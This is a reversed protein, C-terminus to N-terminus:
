KTQTKEKERAERRLARDVDPSACLKTFFENLGQTREIHFAWAIGLFLGALGIGRGIMEAIPTRGMALYALLGAIAAMGTVAGIIWAGWFAKVLVNALKELM